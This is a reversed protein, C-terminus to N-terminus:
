SFDLAVVAKFAIQNNARGLLAGTGVALIIQIHGEGVFGARDVGFHPVAGNLGRQRAADDLNACGAVLEVSAHLQAHFLNAGGLAAVRHIHRREDGARRTVRTFHALLDDTCRIMDRIFVQPEDGTLQEVACAVLQQGKGGGLLHVVGLAATQEMVHGGHQARCVGDHADIGLEVGTQQRCADDYVVEGFDVLHVGVREPQDGIVAHVALEQPM